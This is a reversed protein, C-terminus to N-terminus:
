RCFGNGAGRAKAPSDRVHSCAILSADAPSTARSRTFRLGPHYPRRAAGDAGRAAACGARERDRRMFWQGSSRMNVM